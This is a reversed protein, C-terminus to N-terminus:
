RGEGDTERRIRERLAESVPDGAQQVPQAGALAFKRGSKRIFLIIGIAGVPLLAFPLIWVILNFGKASPAALITPGYEDSFAALIEQDAKGGNLGALLERSETALSPCGVHSCEGLLSNCGCNCMLHHSLNNYRAGTESAGLSFCLAVGLAVIQVARLTLSQKDKFFNIGPNLKM